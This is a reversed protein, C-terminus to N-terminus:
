DLLFRVIGGEAVSIDAVCEYVIGDPAGGENPLPFAKQDKLIKKLPLEEEGFVAKIPKLGTSSHFRIHCKRTLFSDDGQYGIGEPKSIAFVIDKGGPKLSM